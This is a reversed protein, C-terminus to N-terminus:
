FEGKDSGEGKLRVVTLTQGASSPIAAFLGGQRSVALAKIYLIGGLDVESEPQGDSVRWLTAKGSGGSILREDGQSFAVSWQMQGPSFNMMETGDETRFLRVESGLSVAVMSGDSSFAAAQAPGRGLEHTKLIGADRLSFQILRRGDTAWAEFGDRPLHIALTDREFAAMKRPPQKPNDYSQWLVDGASSGSAVFAAAPSAALCTVEKDHGHILRAARLRGGQGVDWLSIKGRYGGALLKKGDHSYAVCQVQGLDRLENKADVQKGTKTDLVLLTEDLKGAALYRGGPEFALSHVTWGLKPFRQVVDTLKELEVVPEKAKSSDDARPRKARVDASRAIPPL